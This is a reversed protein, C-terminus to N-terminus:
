PRAAQLNVSFRGATTYTHSPTAGFPGSTGDGFDWFWDVITGAATSGTADFSVPEGICAEVPSPQLGAATSATALPASRTTTPVAM